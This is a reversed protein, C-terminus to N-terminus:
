GAAVVPKMRSSLAVRAQITTGHQPQSEISLQGGVLELREKMSIRLWKAVRRLEVGDTSVVHSVITSGGFRGFSPQLLELVLEQGTDLKRV